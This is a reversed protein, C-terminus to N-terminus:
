FLYFYNTPVSIKINPFYIQPRRILSVLSILWIKSFVNWQVVVYNKVRSSIVDTNFKVFKKRKFKEFRILVLISMILIHGDPYSFYYIWKFFQRSIDWQRILLMCPFISQLVNWLMSFDSFILYMKYFSFALFFQSQIKKSHGVFM